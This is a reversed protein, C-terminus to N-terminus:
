CWHLLLSGLGLGLQYLSLLLDLSIYDNNNKLDSELCVFHWNQKLNKLDSAFFVKDTYYNFPVLNKLNKVLQFVEM